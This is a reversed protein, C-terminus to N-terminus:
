KALEIGENLAKIIFLNGKTKMRLLEKDTYPFIDIPIESSIFCDMYKPIRDFYRKHESKNLIIIIDADSYLGYDGRAMSGFLIVKQINPFEKKARKACDKLEQIIKNRNRYISSPFNLLKKRM